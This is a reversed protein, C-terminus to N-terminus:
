KVGWTGEGIRKFAHEVFDDPLRVKHVLLYHSLEDPWVWTGDTRDSCGLHRGCIRCTSPGMYHEGFPCEDLYKALTKLVFPHQTEDILDAPWPLNDKMADQKGILYQERWFDSTAQAALGDYEDFKEHGRWFGVFRCGPYDRAYQEMETLHPPQEPVGSRRIKGKFWSGLGM